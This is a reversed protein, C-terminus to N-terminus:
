WGRARLSVVSSITAELYSTGDDQLVSPAPQDFLDDSPHIPQEVKM